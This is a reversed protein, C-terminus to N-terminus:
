ALLSEFAGVFNELQANPVKELYSRYTNLGEDWHGFEMYLAGLQLMLDTNSPDAAIRKQLDPIIQARLPATWYGLGYTQYDQAFEPWAAFGARYDELALEFSRSRLNLSGHVLHATAIFDKRRNVTLYMNLDADASVDDGLAVYVQARYLLASNDYRDSVEIARDYTDLAEVYLGAYGYVSALNYYANADKPNLKIAQKLDDIGEQLRGMMRYAYSRSVYGDSIDPQLEIARDLDTLATTFDRYDAYLNGRSMLARYDDPFIELAKNFDQLAAEYNQRNKYFLGRNTYATTLFPDHSIALGYNGLAKDELGLHLYANAANNYALGYEPTANIAELYQGLAMGDINQQEYAIGLRNYTNALKQGLAIAKELDAQAPVGEKQDLRVDGRLEYLRGKDPAFMIAEAYAALAYDYDKLSQYAAAQAIYAELDKIDAAIDDNAQTIIQELAADSSHTLAAEGNWEAPVWGYANSTLYYWLGGQSDTQVSIVQADMGRVMEAAIPSAADPSTHVPLWYVLILADDGPAILADQAAVKGLTMLLLIGCFILRANLRM